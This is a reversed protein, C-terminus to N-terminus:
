QKVFPIHRIEDGAEIIFVYMGKQLGTLTIQHDLISDSKQIVTNALISKGNLNVVRYNVRGRYSTALKLNLYDTTPNPYLAVSETMVQENSLVLNTVTIIWAQSTIRDEATINFTVPESFDMSSGNGKDSIAGDSLTFSPVLSTLDTRIGVEISITHEETDIIAEGSQESFSFSLFDTGSNRALTVEVVWEQTTVEDKATVTFIVPESFDVISGSAIDSTAGEHLTFEPTLATIDTGFTVEIEVTHDNTDIEPTETQEAISFTLFDTANSPAETVHVLWDQSTMEDQAIVTYIVPESFDRAVGSEINASAENSLTFTPALASLDTGNQVEINITHEDKDIVAHKTQEPFSFSLFDTATSLTETVTITWDQSTVGDEATVTITMPDSFDITTGSEINSSAGASLTFEPTLATIDSGFIVDIAITHEESNISAERIAEPISFSLIETEENPIQTM